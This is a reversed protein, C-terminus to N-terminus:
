CPTFRSVPVPIAMVIPIITSIVIPVIVIVAVESDVGAQVTAAISGQSPSTPPLQRDGLCHTKRSTSVLTRPITEFRSPESYREPREGCQTLTLFGFAGATLRSASSSQPRQSVLRRAYM